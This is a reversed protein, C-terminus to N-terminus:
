TWTTNVQTLAATGATISVVTGTATSNASAWLTTPCQKSWWTNNKILSPYWGMVLMGLVATWIHLVGWAFYLIVPNKVEEEPAAAVEASYDTTTATDTATADTGYADTTADASM